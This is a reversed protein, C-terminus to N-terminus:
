VISELISVSSAIMFRRPTVGTQIRFFRIFYSIDNFGINSAVEKVTYQGTNLQKKAERIIMEQILETSTKGLFRKCVQNLYTQTVCLKEAYFPSQKESRFHQEILKIFKSVLLNKGKQQFRFVKHFEVNVYEAIIMLHLKLVELNFPEKGLEKQISEYELLISKYTDGSLNIVPYSKFLSLGVRFTISFSAVLEKDLIIVYVEAYKELHIEYEQGPYVFHISGPTIEYRVADILHHGSGRVCLILMFYDTRHAQRPKDGFFDFNNCFVVPHKQVDIFDSLKCEPITTNM